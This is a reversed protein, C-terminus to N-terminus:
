RRGCVSVAEKKKLPAMVKTSISYSPQNTKMKLSENKFQKKQLKVHFSCTESSCKNFKHTLSIILHNLRSPTIRIYLLIFEDLLSM